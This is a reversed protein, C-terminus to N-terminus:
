WLKRLTRLKQPKLTGARGLWNQRLAPTDLAGDVECTLGASLCRMVPIGECAVLKRATASPPIDEPPSKVQHLFFNSTSKIHRFRERIRASRKGRKNMFSSNSGYRHNMKHLLYIM